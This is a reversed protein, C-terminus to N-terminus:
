FLIFPILQQDPRDDRQSGKGEEVRVVAIHTMESGRVNSINKKENKRLAKLSLGIEEFESLVKILDCGQYVPAGLIFDADVNFPSGGMREIEESEIHRISKDEIVKFSVTPENSNIFREFDNLLSNDLTDFRAIFEWAGRDYLSVVSM